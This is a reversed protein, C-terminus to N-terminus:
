GGAGSRVHTQPARAPRYGPPGHGQQRHGQPAPGSGQRYDPGQDYDATAQDHNQAQEYGPLGRRGARLRGDGGRVNRHGGTPEGPQYGQDDPGGAEDPEQRSDWSGTAADWGSM